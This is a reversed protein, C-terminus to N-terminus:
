LRTYVIYAHTSHFLVFLIAICIYILPNYPINVTLRSSILGIGILWLITTYAPAMFGFMSDSWPTGPFHMQMLWSLFYLLLGLSYLVWGIKQAKTELSLQMFLPFVFVFARLINEVTGVVPPIDKWFFDKAYAKPLSKIFIINWLIVPILLLFGNLLYDSLWKM